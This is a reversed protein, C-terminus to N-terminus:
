DSWHSDIIKQIRPYQKDTEGLEERMKKLEKKDVFQLPDFDKVEAAIKVPYETSDFHTIMGIGSRGAKLADWNPDNGIGLPTVMGVGTIVVRRKTSM